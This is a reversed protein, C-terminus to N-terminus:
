LNAKMLLEGWSGYHAVAIRHFVNRLPGVVVFPKGLAHAFGCEFERGGTPNVDLTDIILLDAKRIEQLDIHEDGVNYTPVPGEVPYDQATDMWSSSVTHGLSRLFGRELKLRERATVRGGIYINM